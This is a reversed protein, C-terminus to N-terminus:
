IHDEARQNISFSYPQRGSQSVTLSAPLLEIKPTTSAGERVGTTMQQSEEAKGTDRTSSLCRVSSVLATGEAKLRMGQWTRQAIKVGATAVETLGMGWPNFTSYETHLHTDTFTNTHYYTFTHSNHFDAVLYLVVYGSRVDWFCSNQHIQHITSNSVTVLNVSWIGAKRHPTVGQERHRCPSQCFHRGHSSCSCFDCGWEAELKHELWAWGTM